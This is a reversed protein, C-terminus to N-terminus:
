QYTHVSQKDGSDAEGDATELWLSLNGKRGLIKVTSFFYCTILQLIHAFSVYLKYSAFSYTSNSHWM